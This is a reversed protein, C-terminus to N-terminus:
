RLILHQVFESTFPLGIVGGELAAVASVAFISRKSQQRLIRIKFWTGAELVNEFRNMRSDRAVTHNRHLVSEGSRDGLRVIQQEFVVEGDNALGYAPDFMCQDSQRASTEFLNSLRERVRDRQILTFHKEPAM